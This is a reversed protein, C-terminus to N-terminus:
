GFIRPMYRFLYPRYLMDFTDFMERRFDREMDEFIKKVEKTDVTTEITLTFYPAGDKDEDTNGNDPDVDEDADSEGIVFWDHNGLPMFENNQMDIMAKSNVDEHFLVYGDTSLYKGKEELYSKEVNIYWNDSNVDDFLSVFYEKGYDQIDDIECSNLIVNNYNLLEHMIELTLERDSIVTVLHNEEDLNEFMDAVLDEVNDFNLM